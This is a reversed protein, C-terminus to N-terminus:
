PVAIDQLLTRQRTAFDGTSYVQKRKVLGSGTEGENQSEFSEVFRCSGQAEDIQRFLEEDSSISVTLTTSRKPAHLGYIKIVEQLAKHKISASPSEFEEVLKTITGSLGKLTSNELHEIAMQRFDDSKKYLFLSQEHMGMESACQKVTKGEVIHKQFFKVKKMMTEKKPRPPM